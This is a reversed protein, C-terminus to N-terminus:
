LNIIHAFKGVVPLEAEKNNVVNIIGLVSLVVIGLQILMAVPAFFPVIYTLVWIALWVILLVLGQKIHFKALPDKAALIYAVIVLPGLYALISMVKSNDAANLPQAENNPTSNTNQEGQQPQSEENM